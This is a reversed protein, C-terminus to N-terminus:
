WDVKLPRDAKQDASTRRKGPVGESETSLTTEEVGPRDARRSPALKPSMPKSPVGPKNPLGTRSNAVRLSTTSGGSLDAIRVLLFQKDKSEQESWFLYLKHSKFYYVLAKTYLCKQVM